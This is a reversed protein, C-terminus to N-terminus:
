PFIFNRGSDGASPQAASQKENKIEWVQMQRASTAFSCFFNSREKVSADMM